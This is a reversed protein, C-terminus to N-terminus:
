AEPMPVLLVPRKSRRLVRRTVGRMMAEAVMNRAHYALIIMDCGGKEAQEVIEDAINGEKVIIEDMVGSRPTEAEKTEEWFAELAQKIMVSDRKKGILTERIDTQARKRLEEYKERGLMGRLQASISEPLEEMVHLIAISANYHTAISAAYGFAHKAHSSLDTAFLIKKVQASM